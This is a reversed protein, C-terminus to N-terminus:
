RSAKLQAVWRAASNGGLELLSERHANLKKLTDSPSSSRLGRQATRVLAEPASSSDKHATSLAVLADVNDPYAGIAELLLVEDELHDLNKTFPDASALTVLVKSPDLWDDKPHPRHPISSVLLNFWEEARPVVQTVYSLDREVFKPLSELLREAVATSLADADPLLKLHGKYDLLMQLARADTQNGSGGARLTGQGSAWQRLQGVGMDKFSDFDIFAHECDWPRPMKVQTIYAKKELLIAHLHLAPRRHSDVIRELRILALLDSNGIKAYGCEALALKRFQGSHVADFFELLRPFFNRTAQSPEPVLHQM